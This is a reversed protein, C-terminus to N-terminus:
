AEDKTTVGARERPPDDTDARAAAHLDREDREFRERRHRNWWFVLAMVVLGAGLYVPRRDPERRAPSMTRPPTGRPGADLRPQPGPRSPGTVEPASIAPGAPPASADARAAGTLALLVLLLRTM